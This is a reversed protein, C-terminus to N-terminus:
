QDASSLYIALGGIIALNKLFQTLQQRRAADDPQDWFRHGVMTTAGLSVMLGTATARPLLGTILGAGGAVMAAGNLRVLTEPEPLGAKEVISPRPGPEQYADWGGKLFVGALAFRGVTRVATRTSGM